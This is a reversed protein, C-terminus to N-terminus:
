LMGLISGSNKQRFREEFDDIIKYLMASVKKKMDARNAGSFDVEEIKKTIIGALIKKWEDVSFLGYKVKSLEILDEKLLRRENELKYIRFSFFSVFGVLLILILTKYHRM